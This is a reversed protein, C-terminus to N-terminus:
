VPYGEQELYTRVAEVLERCGGVVREATERDIKVTYDYNAKQRM